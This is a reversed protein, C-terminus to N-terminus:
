RTVERLMYVPDGVSVEVQSEKTWTLRYTEAVCFREHVETVNVRLKEYPGLDAGTEPDIISRSGICLITGVGVGSGRGRNVAVTYSDLLAAVKAGAFESM